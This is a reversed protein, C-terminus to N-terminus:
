WTLVLAFVITINQARFYGWFSNWLMRFEFSKGPPAYSGGSGGLKQMCALTRVCEPVIRYAPGICNQKRRAQVHYLGDNSVGKCM